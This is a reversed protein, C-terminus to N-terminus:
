MRVLIDRFKTENILIGLSQAQLVFILPFGACTKHLKIVYHTLYSVFLNPM